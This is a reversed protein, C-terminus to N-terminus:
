SRSTFDACLPDSQVTLPWIMDRAPQAGPLTSTVRSVASPSVVLVKANSEAVALNWIVLALCGVRMMTLLYPWVGAALPQIQFVDANLFSRSCVSIM